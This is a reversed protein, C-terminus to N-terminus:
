TLHTINISFATNVISFNCAKFNIDDFGKKKIQDILVYSCVINVYFFNVM